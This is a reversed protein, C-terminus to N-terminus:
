MQWLWASPGRYTSQTSRGGPLLPWIKVDAQKGVTVAPNQCTNVTRYLSRWCFGVSLSRRDLTMGSLDGGEESSRLGDAEGM